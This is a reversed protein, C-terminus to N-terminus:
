GDGGGVDSGGGGYDSDQADFSHDSHHLDGAHHAWDTLSSDANLTEHLTDQFHPIYATETLRSLALAEHFREATCYMAYAYAIHVQNVGSEEVAREVRGPSYDRAPGYLERLKARLTTRYSRLAARKRWQKWWELMM